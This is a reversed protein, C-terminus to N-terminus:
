RICHSAMPCERVRAPGPRMVRGTSRPSIRRSRRSSVRKPQLCAEALAMAMPDSDRGMLSSARSRCATLLLRQATRPDRDSCAAATWGLGAWGLGTWDLGTGTCIHCPPARCVTFWRITDGFAGVSSQRSDANSRGHSSRDLRTRAVPLVYQRVSQFARCAM